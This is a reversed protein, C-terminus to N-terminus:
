TAYCWGATSKSTFHMWFPLSPLHSSLSMVILLHSIPWATGDCAYTFWDYSGALPTM